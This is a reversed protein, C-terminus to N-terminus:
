RALKKIRETYINITAEIFVFKKSDGAKRAIELEEKLNIIKDELMKRDM